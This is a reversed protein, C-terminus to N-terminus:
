CTITGKRLAHGSDNDDDAWYAPESGGVCAAAGALAFGENNLNAMGAPRDYVATVAFGGTADIRM